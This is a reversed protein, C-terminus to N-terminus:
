CRQSKSWSEQLKLFILPRSVRGWAEWFVCRQRCRGVGASFMLLTTIVQKSFALVRFANIKQGLVRKMKSQLNKKHNLKTYTTM